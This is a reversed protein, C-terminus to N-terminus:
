WCLQWCAMIQLYLSHRLICCVVLLRGLWSQAGGQTGGQFWGKRVGAGLGAFPLSLFAPLTNNANPCCKPVNNEMATWPLCSAHSASHLFWALQCAPMSCARLKHTAQLVRTDVHASM